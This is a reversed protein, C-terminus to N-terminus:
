YRQSISALINWKLEVGKGDWVHFRTGHWVGSLQGHSCSEIHLSWRIMSTAARQARNDCQKWVWKELICNQEHIRQFSRGLSFSRTHSIFGEYHAKYGEGSKKGESLLVEKRIGTKLGLVSDSSIVSLAFKLVNLKCFKPSHNEGQYLSLSLCQRVKMFYISDQRLLMGSAERWIANVIEQIMKLQKIVGWSGPSRM